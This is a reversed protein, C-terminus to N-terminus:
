TLAYRLVEGAFVRIGAKFPMTNGLLISLTLLLSHLITENSAFQVLTRLKYKLVWFNKAKM